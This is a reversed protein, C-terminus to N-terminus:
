WLYRYRQGNHRFPNSRSADNRQRMRRRHPIQFDINNSLKQILARYTYVRGPLYEQYPLGYQNEFIRALAHEKAWYENLVRVRDSATPILIFKSIEESLIPFAEMIQYEFSKRILEGRLLARGACNRVSRKSLSQTKYRVRSRM